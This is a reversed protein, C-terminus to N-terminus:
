DYKILIVEPYTSKSELLLKTNKLFIKYKISFYESEVMSILVFSVFNVQHFVINEIERVEWEHLVRRIYNKISM